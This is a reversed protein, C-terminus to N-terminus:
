IWVAERMWDPVFTVDASPDFNLSGPSRRVTEEIGAAISEFMGQIEEASYRGHRWHGFEIDHDAWNAARYTKGKSLAEDLDFWRLHLLYLGEVKHGGEAARHFGPTWNLPVRTILPKDEAEARVIASRQALVPSRPNYATELNLRQHLNYGTTVGIPHPIELLFQRLSRGSLAAPDACVFEDSDVYLVSDYIELLFRQLLMALRMRLVDDMGDRPIRLIVTGKPVISEYQIDSGHDIVFVNEAGFAKAYYKTCLPLMLTENYATVFVAIRGNTKPTVSYQRLPNAYVTTKNPGAPVVANKLIPVSWVRTRGEVEYVAEVAEFEDIFKHWDLSSVEPPLTFEYGPLGDSRQPRATLGLTGLSRFRVRVDTTANRGGDSYTAWGTIRAPSLSEIFGSFSM